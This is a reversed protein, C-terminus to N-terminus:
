KNIPLWRSLINVAMKLLVKCEKRKELQKVSAKCKVFVEHEGTVYKTTYISACVLSLSIQLPTLIKVVKYYWVSDDRDDFRMIVNYDKANSSVHEM